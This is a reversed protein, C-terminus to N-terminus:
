SLSSIHNSCIQDNHFSYLMPGGKFSAGYSRFCGGIFVKARRTNEEERLCMHSGISRVRLMLRGVKSLYRRDKKGVQIVHRGRPTSELLGEGVLICLELVLLFCPSALVYLSSIWGYVLLRLM